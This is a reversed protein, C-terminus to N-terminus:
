NCIRDLIREYVYAYREPSVPKAIVEDAGQAIFEDIDTQFVNGTGGFILGTFGLERIKFSAQLGSMFPMNSDMLIADFGQNDSISREVAQIAREGDSASELVLNSDMPSLMRQHFKRCLASDDVILIRIPTDHEQSKRRLVADLTGRMHSLGSSFQGSVSVVPLEMYFISGPGDWDHDIGITGQHMGIIRRSLFLGLGSGGGGQLEKANLQVFESFLKRRDSKAIGVGTDRVEIRVRDRKLSLAVSVAVSGGSRTFKVANSLLNRLVQSLKASDGDIMIHSSETYNHLVLQLSAQKAQIKFMSHVQDVVDLINCPSKELSLQDADLKEYALLDNLIDVAVRCASKMDQLIDLADSPMEPVLSKLLDLGSMVVNMPTRIEHSVQRVFRRKTELKQSIAQFRQLTDGVASIREDFVAKLSNRQSKANRAAIVKVGISELHADMLKKSYEEYKGYLEDNSLNRAAPTGSMIFYPLSPISEIQWNIFPMSSSDALTTALNMAVRTCKGLLLNRLELLFIDTDETVIESVHILSVRSPFAINKRFEENFRCIFLDKDLICVPIPLANAIMATLHLSNIPVSRHEIHPRAGEIAQIDAIPIIRQQNKRGFLSSDPSRDSPM